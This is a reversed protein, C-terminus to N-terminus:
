AAFADLKSGMPKRTASPAAASMRRVRPMLGKVVSAVKNALSGGVLRDVDSKDIVDGSQQVDLIMQKTLLGTTISSSGAVTSFLGSNCIIVVIEPAVAPLGANYNNRVRVDMQLSFSGLSGSSLYPPLSLHMAPSIALVSGITGVSVPTYPAGTQALSTRGSWEYWNQKVGCSQSIRWLDYKSASSLLGSANNFNVSVSEVSFFSATDFQNQASLPKRAIVYITDPVQNLQITNTQISAEAGSAIPSNYTTIYRPFDQYGIINRAKILDTPQTSLFNLLLGTNSFPAAPDLSLSYTYTSNRSSWFRRLQSDINFVLSLSNLGVFAQQNVDYKGGFLFPSLFIPETLTTECTILWTDGIDTSVLSTDPPGAVPQHVISIINIPHAGRPVYHNDLDANQWGSLVDNGDGPVPVRNYNAYFSDRLYPTMGQYAALQAPDMCCLLADKVDALNISVSTNNLTAQVTSFISNLPFAQLADTVGYNFAVAGPVAPPGVVPGPVNRVDIIFRVTTTLLVDRSVLTSESPIQVSFSLNSSSSATPTFKQYTNAAAGSMVGYAVQDSIQAIRPDKVLVPVFDASM